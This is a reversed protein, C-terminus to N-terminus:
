RSCRLKFITDMEVQRLRLSLTMVLVVALLMAVSVVAFLADFIRKVKFVHRMLREIVEAPIVLQTPSMEEVYRGRLLMGSKHDYPVALIATLPLSALDSHMPFVTLGDVCSPRAFEHALQRHDIPVFPARGRHGQAGTPQGHHSLSLKQEHDLLGGVERELHHAHEDLSEPAPHSSCGPRVPGL